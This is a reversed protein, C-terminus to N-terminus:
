IKGTQFHYVTARPEDGAEVIFGGGRCELPHDGLREVGLGREFV